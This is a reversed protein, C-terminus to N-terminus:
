KTVKTEVKAKAKKAAITTKEKVEPITFFEKLWKLFPM